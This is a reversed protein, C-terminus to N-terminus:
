AASCQVLFLPFIKWTKKAFYNSQACAYRESNSEPENGLHSQSYNYGIQSLHLNYGLTACTELCSCSPLIDTRFADGDSKRVCRYKGPGCVRTGQSGSLISHYSQEKVGPRVLFFILLFFVGIWNSSMVYTANFNECLWMPGIYLEDFMGIPLKTHHVAQLVSAPTGCGSLM